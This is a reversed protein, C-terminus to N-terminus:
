AATLLPVKTLLIYEVETKLDRMVALVGVTEGESDLVAM